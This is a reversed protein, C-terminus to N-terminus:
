CSTKVPNPNEDKDTLLDTMEEAVTPHIGVCQDLTDKTLGAKIAVGMGQTMEGANPALVHYGIVRNNDATNVIV